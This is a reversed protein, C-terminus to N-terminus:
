DEANQQAKQKFYTEILSTLFKQWAGFPVRGELESYLELDVRAVLSQPFCISKEIPRDVRKPRAM